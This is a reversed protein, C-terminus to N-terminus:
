LPSLSLSLYHSVQTYRRGYDLDAYVFLTRIPLCLNKKQPTDFSRQSVRLVPNGYSSIHFRLIFSGEQLFSGVGIQARGPTSKLRNMGAETQDVLLLSQSMEGYKGDKTATRCTDFNCHSPLSRRMGAYDGREGSVRDM